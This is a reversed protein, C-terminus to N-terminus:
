ISRFRTGSRRSNGISTVATLITANQTAKPKPITAGTIGAKARSNPTLAKAALETTETKAPIRRRPAGIAPLNTSRIPSRRVRENPNAITAILEKAAPRDCFKQCSSTNRPRPPSPLTANEIADMATIIRTTSGPSRPLAELAQDPPKRRPPSAPGATPPM